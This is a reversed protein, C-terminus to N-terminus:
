AKTPASCPALADFPIMNVADPPARVAIMNIVVDVKRELVKKDAVAEDVVVDPVYMKAVIEAKDKEDM